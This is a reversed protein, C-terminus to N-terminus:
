AGGPIHRAADSSIRDSPSYDRCAPWWARVDTAPSHSARPAGNEVNAGALCKAYSRGHYTLAERFYCSGCTFPDDKPSGADRHRSALQHLPGGTLPHIGDAIREAQRLTRRRDATLGPQESPRLERVQPQYGPFLTDDM